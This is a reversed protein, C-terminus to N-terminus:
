SPHSGSLAIVVGNRPGAQCDALRLMSSSSRALGACSVNMGASAGTLGRFFFGRTFPVRFLTPSGSGPQRSAAGLFTVCTAPCLLLM